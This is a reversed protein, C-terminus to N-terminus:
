RRWLNKVEGGFKNEVFFKCEGGTDSHNVKVTPYVNEGGTESRFGAQGSRQGM